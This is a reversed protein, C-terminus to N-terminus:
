FGSIFFVEVSRWYEKSFDLFEKIGKFKFLIKEHYDDGDIFKQDNLFLIYYADYKADLIIMTLKKIM